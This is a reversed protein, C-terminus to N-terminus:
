MKSIVESTFCMVYRSVTRLDVFSGARAREVWAEDDWVAAQSGHWGGDPTIIAEVELGPFGEVIDGERGGRWILLIM